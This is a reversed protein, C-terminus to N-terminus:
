RGAPPGPWIPVTPDRYQLMSGLTPNRGPADRCDETGMPSEFCRAGAQDSRPIDWLISGKDGSSSSSKAPYSGMTDDLRGFGTRQIQATENYWSVLFDAAGQAPLLKPNFSRREFEVCFTENGRNFNEDMLIVFNRILRGDRLGSV